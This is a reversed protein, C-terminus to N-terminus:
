LHSKEVYEAIYSRLLDAWINRFKRIKSFYTVSLHLMLSQAEILINEHCWKCHGQDESTQMKIFIRVTSDSPFTQLKLCWCGMFLNSQRSKLFPMELASVCLSHEPLFYSRRNLIEYQFKSSRYETIMRAVPKRHPVFLTNEVKSGWLHFLKWWGQRNHAYVRSTKLRNPVNLADVSVPWAQVPNRLTLGLFLYCNSLNIKCHLDSLFTYASWPERSYTKNCFAFAYILQQLHVWVLRLRVQSSGLLPPCHPHSTWKENQWLM